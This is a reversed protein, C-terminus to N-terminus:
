SSVPSDDVQEEGPAKLQDSTTADVAPPLKDVLKGDCIEKFYDYSCIDLYTYLFTVQKLAENFGEVYQEAAEGELDNAYWSKAELM